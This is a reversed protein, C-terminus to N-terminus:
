LERVFTIGRAKQLNIAQLKAPFSTASLTHIGATGRFPEGDRRKVVDLARPDNKL